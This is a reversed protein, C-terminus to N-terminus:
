KTTIWNKSYTVINMRLYSNRELRNKDKSIKHRKKPVYIRFANGFSRLPFNDAKACM